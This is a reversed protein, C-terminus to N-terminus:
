LKRYEVGGLLLRTPSFGPFDYPYRVPGTAGSFTVDIAFNAMRFTCGRTTTDSSGALNSYTVIRQQCNGSAGLTWTTTVTQLDGVLNMLFTVQWRGVLAPDINGGGSGGGGGGGGGGPFTVPGGGGGGSGDGVDLPPRSTASCSTLLLLAILALGVLGARHGHRHRPRESRREDAM